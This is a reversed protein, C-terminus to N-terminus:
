QPVIKAEKVVAILHALLLFALVCAPFPYDAKIEKCIASIYNSIVM